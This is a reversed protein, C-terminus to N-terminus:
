SELPLLKYDPTDDYIDTFTKEGLLKGNKSIELQQNECLRVKKEIEIM